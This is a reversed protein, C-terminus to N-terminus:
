PAPATTTVTGTVPPSSEPMQMLMGMRMRSLVVLQPDKDEALASVKEFEQIAEYRRGLIEYAGALLFHAQASDPALGVAKEAEALAKEGDGAQTYAQGRALRYTLESDALEQVRAFAEEAGTPAHAIAAALAADALERARAFAEEAGAQNGQKERVVGLWTWLGLDDPTYKLAELFQQEAGAWDGEMVLREAALQFGQAKEVNPDTPFFYNFAYYFAAGLVVLIVLSIATRRLRQQTHALVFRDLWWWWHSKDPRVEERWRLLSLGARRVLTGAKSRVTGEISELRTHEPRLDVGQSELDAVLTVVQDLWGFLERVQEATASNANALRREIHGLIERLEDAPTLKGTEIARVM